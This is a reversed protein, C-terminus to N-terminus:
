CLVTCFTTDFPGNGEHHGVTSIKESDNRNQQPFM